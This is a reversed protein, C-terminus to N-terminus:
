VKESQEFTFSAELSPMQCTLLLLRSALEFDCVSRDGWTTSSSESISITAPAHM